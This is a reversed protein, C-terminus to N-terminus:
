DSEWSARAIALNTTTLLTWPRMWLYRFYNVILIINKKELLVPYRRGSPQRLAVFIQPLYLTYISTYGTYISRLLYIGSITTLRIGRKVWREKRRQYSEVVDNEMSHQVFWSNKSDLWDPDQGREKFNGPTPLRVSPRAEIQVRRSGSWDFFIVSHGDLTM